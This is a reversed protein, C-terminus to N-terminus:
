HQLIPTSGRGDLTLAIKNRGDVLMKAPVDIAANPADQRMEITEIEQDNVAITLKYDNTLHQIGRTTPRWRRSSPSRESQLAFLRLVEAAFDPIRGGGEGM